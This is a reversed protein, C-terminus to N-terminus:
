NNLFIINTRDKSQRLSETATHHSQQAHPRPNSDCFHLTNVSLKYLM